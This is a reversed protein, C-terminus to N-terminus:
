RVELVGVKGGFGDPVLVVGPPVTWDGADLRMEIHYIGPHLDLLASWTGDKARVLSLPTWDTFDGRVQVNETAAVRLKLQYQDTDPVRLLELSGADASPATATATQRAAPTGNLTLRLGLGAFRSGPLGLEPVSPRRGVTGIAAIRRSWFPLPLAASAYSWTADHTASSGARAGVTLSLEVGRV